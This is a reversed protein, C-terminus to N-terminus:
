QASQLCVEGKRDSSDAQLSHKRSEKVMARYESPTRDFLTRFQKSFYSINSFGCNLAIDTVTRDTDSLLRAAHFVRKRRIYEVPSYHLYQQFIRQCERTCVNASDAIESVTLNDALHNDIWVLMEKLRNEQVSSVARNAADPSNSKVYLLIGSLADRVQFEYGYEESRCAAFAREFQEFYVRDGNEKQFKLFPAGKELLPRVYATDFISGPTGGVIDPGFVFSSYRCPSSIDATFSHIVETNIFCGDGAQLRYTCNGADIQVYGERLLFIELERHWHSPIYGAAFEHIDGNNVSVDFLQMGKEQLEKGRHDMLIFNPERIMFDEMETGGACGAAPM